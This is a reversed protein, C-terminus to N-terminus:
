KSRITQNRGKEKANHMAKDCRDLLEDLPEDFHHCAVGISATISDLQEGTKTNKVKLNEVAKRIHEAVNYANDLGTEPLLIIFEEGGFRAVHDTSRTKDDLMRAFVKLTKDGFLHGYNDNIDKFHDIDVIVVSFNTGNRRRDNLLKKIQNDFGRRNLLGTLADTSAEERAHTLEKKLTNLGKSTVVLDSEMKKTDAVFQRTIHVISSIVSLIDHASQSQNLKDIHQELQKNSMSSKGAVELLTSITETITDILENRLNDALEETCIFFYYAFLKVAAEHNLGNNDLFNDIKENLSLNKGSVYVYFLSYFVPNIPLKNKSLKALAMRMFEASKEPEDHELLYNIEHDMETLNEM